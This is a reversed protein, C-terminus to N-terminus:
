DESSLLGQEAGRGVLAGTGTDETQAMGPGSGAKSPREPSVITFKLGVAINGKADLIRKMKAIRNEQKIGSIKCM